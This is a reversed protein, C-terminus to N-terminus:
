APGGARGAGNQPTLHFRSRRVDGHRELALSVLRDILDPFPIGSAAWLMPYMSIPTFGPITNIENVLVRGSGRELFFDVRAMGSCDVAKFAERAFHRVARAAPEPLEAPILTRSDPSAYKAEYDYFENAPVIEGIVSVEPEDNGLVSCELERGDVAKEVLIKRDWEAAQGVATVLSADDRAKSVGVSSGANAPKVFCPFGIEKAVAERIVASDTSWKNRLFWIFDACPLENQMFAQKMLVKDMGLASGLVGAGVCPINSLALLGQVTGDEGFTGHLVPFAADVPVHTIGGGAVEYFGTNESNGALLVPGTAADLAQVSSLDSSAGLRQWAGRRTIKVPIVDYKERRINQLISLASTLSVEHESSMGGFVLALRLKRM